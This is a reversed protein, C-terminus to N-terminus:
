ISINKLLPREKEEITWHKKNSYLYETAPHKFCFYPNYDIGYVRYSINNSSRYTIDTTKNIQKHPIIQGQFYQMHIENIARSYVSPGTMKHIDNPHLNYRINEVILDITRKLIPHGKSFILAWQVYLYPNGEATIIAEDEEKILLRLPEVISSDMDLYVGGYKYLVLYRWFDVKAVIINLLHYCEAIEGPYYENVFEDMEEDTYLHYSYEPNAQKCKDVEEQVRPHLDRTYWSQFINKEIM